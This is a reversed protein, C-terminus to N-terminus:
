SIASLVHEINLRFIHEKVSDNINMQEVKIIQDGIRAYPTDSGFIVHEHGFLNIAELIDKGRVRESGSTDFYVNSLIHREEKFIELGLMHAIIFTVDQNNGIFQLLKRTERKSYLHIFIPLKKARAIEVLRNFECGDIRFPNWAQHLKIGRIQYDRINNELNSMQLTDLPNLWFFPVVIEPISKSIELVHKNGDGNDKIFSNYAFRLLRNLLYIGMPSKIFPINPPDNLDLNNKPSTCLVIKDIDFRKSIEIISEPTSYERAVHAHADIIM